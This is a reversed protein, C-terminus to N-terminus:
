MNLLVDAKDGPKAGRYVKGTYRDLLDMLTKSHAYLQCNVATSLREWRSKYASSRYKKGVLILRLMNELPKLLVLTNQEQGTFQSGAKEALCLQFMYEGQQTYFQEGNKTIFKKMANMWQIENGGANRIDEDPLRQEWDLISEFTLRCVSNLPVTVPKINTLEKLDKDKNRCQQFSELPADWIMHQGIKHEPGNITKYVVGGSLVAPNESKGVELDYRGTKRACGIMLIHDRACRRKQEEESMGEVKYLNFTSLPVCMSELNGNVHPQQDDLGGENQANVQAARLNNVEGETTFVFLYDSEDVSDNEPKAHHRYLFVNKERLNDKEYKATVKQKYKSNFKTKWSIAGQLGVVTPM